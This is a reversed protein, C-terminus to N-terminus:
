AKVGLAARTRVRLDNREPMYMAPDLRATEEWEALLKELEEVRDASKELASRVVTKLNERHLPSDANCAKHRVLRPLLGARVIAAIEKSFNPTHTRKRAATM